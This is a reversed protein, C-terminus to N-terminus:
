RAAAPATALAPEDAGGNRHYMLRAFAGATLFMFASYIAAPIALDDHILVAVAIALTGNHVGLEMAVATSQRNDLRALRSIAYSCSMALVNLTLAAIALETFHETVTGWEEAVAGVVVLVFAVMAIRKAVPEKAIAWAARRERIAMGVAVPVVTILFVRASIGLMGVDDGVGANFHSIALSLYLPVTIVAAISSLATMSISLATDGRALHTMLNATAGGPSAGLLVLGVAFLAELGYLEAVAFALFPSVVFLNGLGILIGRPATFVRKFDDLTLSLGLSGMILALAIPLGIIAFASQDEM